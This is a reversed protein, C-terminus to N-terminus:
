WTVLPVRVSAIETATVPGYCRSDFSNAIRTSVVLFEGPRLTRTARWVPLPRGSADAAPPMPAVQRGNVTLWPGTTDVRDGSGAVVPKLIYWDRGDRGSRALVYRRAAPPIRFDVLRGVAPPASSRLYLGPPVSPSTNLVVQRDALLGSAVGLAATVAVGFALVPHRRVTATAWAWSGASLTPRSV